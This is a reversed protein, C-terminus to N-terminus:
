WYNSWYNTSSTYWCPEMEREISHLVGTQSRSVLALIIIKATLPPSTDDIKLAGSVSRSCSFIIKYKFNVSSNSCLIISFIIKYDMFFCVNLQMWSNIDQLGTLPMGLIDMWQKVNDIFCFCSNEPISMFFIISLYHSSPNKIWCWLEHIITM